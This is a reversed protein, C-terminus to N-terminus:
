PVPLGDSVMIETNQDVLAFIGNWDRVIARVQGSVRDTIIAMPSTSSPGLVFEGEPGTLVVRELAGDLEADFPVAFLFDGGGLERPTPEFDFSFRVQGGPGFGQLRYPGGVDPLVVPTEVLFAPELLLEGNGTRGWLLLTKESPGPDASHESPHRDPAGAAGRRVETRLRYNLARVFSYDSIWSPDCYGMLDVHQDPDVLSGYVPEYGWVGTGGDRYPFNPDPGGAGGCPAHLLNMNHGVEHAFVDNLNLGISVPFAIYGLGGIGFPNARFFAGYYYGTGNEMLRLARIEVILQLWGDFDSLDASTYYPDRVALQMDGIPLVSRAFDLWESQPTLNGAWVRIQEDPDTSAIVPVITQRHVPLEIVNLEMSGEAPVRTQSGSRLPVVGDPDLEVFMEVGPQIVDGPIEANFSQFLWRESVANPIVQPPGMAASHIVEGDLLFDAYARPEYYSVEDGTVFVRLLAKRGAILPVTGDLRQIAQNLYIAPAALQVSSPSILLTTRTILGASRAGIRAEGNDLATYSGDPAFEVMSPDSVEWEAPAWSPPGQIVQGDEDFVTLTLEGVDGERIRADEPSIALSHPIQNPELALDACGTAVAGAALLSLARQWIKMPAAKGNMPATDGNFLAPKGLVRKKYVRLTCM